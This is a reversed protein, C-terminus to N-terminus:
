FAGIIVLNTAQQGTLRTHRFEDGGDELPVRTTNDRIQQAASDFLDVYDRLSAM